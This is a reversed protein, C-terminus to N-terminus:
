WKESSLVSVECLSSGPNHYTCYRCDTTNCNVVAPAKRLVYGMHQASVHGSFDVLDALTDSVDLLAITHEPVYVGYMDRRM